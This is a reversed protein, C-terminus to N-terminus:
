AFAARRAVALPDFGTHCGQLRPLINGKGGGHRATGRDVVTHLHTKQGSDANHLPIATM